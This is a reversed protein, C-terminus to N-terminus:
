NKKQRMAHIEIKSLFFNCIFSFRTIFTLLVNKSNKMYSKILENRLSTLKSTWVAKKNVGSKKTNFNWFKKKM